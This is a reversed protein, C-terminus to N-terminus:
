VPGGAQVGVPIFKGELYTQGGSWAVVSTAQKVDKVKLLLVVQGECGGHNQKQVNSYNSVIVISQFTPGNM